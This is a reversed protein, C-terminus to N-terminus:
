LRRSRAQSDLRRLGDRARVGKARARQPDGSRFMTPPAGTPRRVRRSEPDACPNSQKTRPTSSEGVPSKGMRFMSRNVHTGTMKSIAATHVGRGSAALESESASSLKEFKVKSLVIWTGLLGVVFGVLLSCNKSM